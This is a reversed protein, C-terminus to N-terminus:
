CGCRLYFDPPGSMVCFPEFFPFQDNFWLKRPCGNCDRSLHCTRKTLGEIAALRSNLADMRAQPDAESIVRYRETHKPAEHANLAVVDPQEKMKWTNYWEGWKIFEKTYVEAMTPTDRAICRFRQATLQGQALYGLVDELSTKATIHQFVRCKLFKYLTYDDLSAVRKSGLGLQMRCPDTPDPILGDDALARAENLWAASTGEITCDMDKELQSIHDLIHGVDSIFKSEIRVVKGLVKLIVDTIEQVTHDVLQMAVRAAEHITANVASKVHEVTLQVDDDVEAIMGEALVNVKDIIPPLL